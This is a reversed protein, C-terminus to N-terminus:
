CAGTEVAVFCRIKASIFRASRFIIRQGGTRMSRASNNRTSLVSEKDPSVAIGTDDALSCHKKLKRPENHSKKAKPKLM